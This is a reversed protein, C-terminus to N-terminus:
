VLNRIKFSKDVGLRNALFQAYEESPNNDPEGPPAYGAWEGRGRILTLLTLEPHNHIVTKLFNHLYLWGQEYTPFIAFGGPSRRVKGYIPLYGGDNYRCNGPNNNKYNADNPGGEFDRIALCLNELTAKNQPTELPPTDDITKPPLEDTPPTKPAEPPMKEPPNYIGGPRLVRYCGYGFIVIVLSIVTYFMM